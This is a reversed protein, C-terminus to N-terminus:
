IYIHTHPMLCNCLFRCKCFLVFFFYRLEFLSIIIRVFFVDTYFFHNLLHFKMHSSLLFSMYSPLQYIFISSSSSSFIPSFLSWSHFILFYCMLLIRTMLKQFIKVGCIMPNKYTKIITSYFILLMSIHLYGTIFWIICM